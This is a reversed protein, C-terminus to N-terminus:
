IGHSAGGGAETTPEDLAETLAALAAARQGRNIHQYISRTVLVNAHGAVESVATIGVGRAAMLTIATHRLDYLRIPTV